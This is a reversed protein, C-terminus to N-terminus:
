DVLELPRYVPDWMQDAIWSDLSVKGEGKAISIVREDTANGEEVAARVVAAAVHVSVARIHELDPLLSASPDEVAPSLEALGEVGAMIMAPSITKSKSLIAGLGLSPYILANNTQAVEYERGDPLKVPPFPSGTAM